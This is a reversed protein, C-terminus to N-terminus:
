RCRPRLRRSARRLLPRHRKMDPMIGRAQPAQTLSERPTANTGSLREQLRMGGGYWVIFIAGAAAILVSWAIVWRMRRIQEGM